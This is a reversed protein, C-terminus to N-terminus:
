IEASMQMYAQAWASATATVTIQNAVMTPTFGNVVLGSANGYSVNSYTVSPIARMSVPFFFSTWVASGAINYGSCVVGGGLAQYYRQCDALSKALSQRNFPTAVSGVELKVGTIFLQAGASLSLQTTGTAGYYNGTAWANAPARFNAGSGIDFVVNM